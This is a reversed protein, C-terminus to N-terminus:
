QSSISIRAHPFYNRLNRFISGIRKKFVYVHFVWSYAGNYKLFFELRGDFPEVKVRGRVFDHTTTDVPKPSISFVCDYGAAKCLKLVSVDYDGYPFALMRIENATLEQLKLRSEEIEKRADNPRLRSLRPHTQSHSGLSVFLSPLTALREASIITEHADLNGTEMPWTPKNGLLGTPVFITSHFGRAALEPLANEAVSM